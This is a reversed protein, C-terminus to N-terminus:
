SKLWVICASLPSRPMHQERKAFDTVVRVSCYQRSSVMNLLTWRRIFLNHPGTSLVRVAGRRQSLRWTREAERLLEVTPGLHERALEKGRDQERNCAGGRRNSSRPGSAGLMSRMLNSLEVVEANHAVVRLNRVLYSM